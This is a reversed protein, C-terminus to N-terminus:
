VPLSGGLWMRGLSRLVISESLPAAPSALSAGRLRRMVMGLHHPLHATPMASNLSPATPALLRLMALRRPLSGSQTRSGGATVTGKPLKSATLM